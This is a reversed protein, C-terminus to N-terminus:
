LKDYPFPNVRKNYFLIGSRDLNFATACLLKFTAIKQSFFTTLFHQHGAINELTTAVVIDWESCAPYVIFPWTIIQNIWSFNSFNYLHYSADHEKGWLTKLITKADCFQKTFPQKWSLCFQLEPQKTPSFGFWQNIDSYGDILSAEKLICILEEGM